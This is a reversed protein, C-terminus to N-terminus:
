GHGFGRGAWSRLLAALGGGAVAAILLMPLLLPYPWPIVDRLAMVPWLFLSAIPAALDPCLATVLVLALIQERLPPGVENQSDSQEAM